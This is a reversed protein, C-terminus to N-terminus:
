RYEAWDPDQAFIWRYYDQQRLDVAADEDVVVRCQQHLQLASATVMSTIPGEVAKAIIGAKSKGTALLVVSRADLITGVGMTIARRPMEDPHDFLTSNVKVTPEALTKGRLLERVIQGCGTIPVDDFL